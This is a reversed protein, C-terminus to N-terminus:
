QPLVSSLIPSRCATATSLGDLALARLTTLNCFSEPITGTFCNQVAAFSSINTLYHGTLYDPLRGTLQNSSVDVARGLLKIPRLVYTNELILCYFPSQWESSQTFYRFSDVPVAFLSQKNSRSLFQKYHQSICTSVDAVLFEFHMSVHFSGTLLNTSLSLHELARLQSLQSPVTGYFLNGDMLVYYLATMNGLGAPITGSMLNDSVAMGQWFREQFADEPINGTLLNSSVDLSNFLHGFGGPLTGSLYNLSLDVVFLSYPSFFTSPITGTLYNENIYVVEIGQMEGMSTPISGTLCNSELVLIQLSSAESVESPISGSFLNEQLYLSAINPPQFLQIPIEGKIFNKFISLYNLLNNTSWNSPLSGTLQNDYFLLSKLRPSSMNAWADPVTGELINSGVNIQAISAWDRSFQPLSGSLVNISVDFYTVSSLQSMNPSLTGHLHNAALSVSTLNTMHYLEEPITGTFHCQTLTLGNLNYLNEISSPIPGSLSTYFFYISRLSTLNGISAPLTGYLTLATLINFVIMFPFNGIAEPLTGALNMDELQLQGVVNECSTKNSEGSVSGSGGSASVNKESCVTLCSIGQWEEGCPDPSPQSFNWPNGYYYYYMWSEGGTANYIAYLAELESSSFSVAM